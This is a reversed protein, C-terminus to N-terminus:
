QHLTEVSPGQLHNVSGRCYNWFSGAALPSYRRWRNVERSRHMLYGLFVRLQENEDSLLSKGEGILMKWM